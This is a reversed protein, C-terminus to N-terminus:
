DVGTECSTVRTITVSVATSREADPVEFDRKM